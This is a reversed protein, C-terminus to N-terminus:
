DFIFNVLRKNTKGEALNYFSPHFKLVLTYRKQLLFFLFFSLFFLGEKFKVLMEEKLASM